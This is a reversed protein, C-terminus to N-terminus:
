RRQHTGHLYGGKDDGDVGSMGTNKDAGEDIEGEALDKEGKGDVAYDPVMKGDPKEEKLIGFKKM